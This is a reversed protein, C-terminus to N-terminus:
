YLLDSKCGDGKLYIQDGRVETTLNLIAAIVELKSYLNDDNLNATVPCDAIGPNELHIPVGYAKDITKLVEALPTEDFAFVSEERNVASFEPLLQPKDVLAVTFAEDREYFVVKRNPTLVVKEPRTQKHGATKEVSVKGSHVAVEISGDTENTITFSTGLVKTCIDRSYVLFPRGPDPTIDFTGTGELRVLRRSPDFSSPYALLAGPELTIRSSDELLLTAPEGTDNRFSLWGHQDEASLARVPDEFVQRNSLYGGAALLLLVAACALRFWASQWWRFVPIGPEKESADKRQRLVAEWIRKKVSPDALSEEHDAPEYNIANFWYYLIEKEEPTCKGASYKEILQSISRLDM